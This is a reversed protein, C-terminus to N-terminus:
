KMERQDLYEGRASNEFVRPRHEERVILSLTECGCVVVPLIITKPMRIKLIKFLLHSSLLNHVSHYCPNGLNLRREIEEQILNLENSENGIDSSQLM